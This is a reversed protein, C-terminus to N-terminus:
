KFELKLKNDKVEYLNGLVDTAYKKCEVFTTTYPNIRTKTFVYRPKVEIVNRVDNNTGLFTFLEYDSDKYVFKEKPSFCFSEGIEKKIYLLEDTHLSFLFEAQSGIKKKNLLENYLGNDIHYMGDSKKYEVDVHRVTVFRIKGDECRYFDTRYPKLTLRAGLLKNQTRDVAEVHENLIKGKYKMSKIPPGKRKPSFKTVPGNEEFFKTLPNKIRIEKTEKDAKYANVYKIKNKDIKYIDKNDKYIEFDALVINKIIDFTRPDNKAIFYKECNDNLIDEILKINEKSNYIDSIKEIVYNKGEIKRFGKIQENFLQRNPKTDIKHSIKIPNFHMDEKDIMRNYYQNSEQYLTKLNVIYQIYREDFFVKDDPITIIEGTEENYLDNFDHEQKLLYRNLLNMKKVSAVILADVAHHLYNEDRDKELHIKKRFLDTVRGNITHVKTDIENDKFYDSLTNLVVRCAYSTDVLNRNIFKKAVEEKTINEENLLNLKKKYPIDKNSLVYTKFESYSCGMGNFKNAAYAMFPTLNGKVQNESHLALVKNNQSDDLSISIPIIHDIETYKPDKIVRNLDLPELTYASKGNQQEYLHIKMRTKGNIKSPDYGKEILMKDMEKSGNERNKQFNNIRKKKEDSNKDRTM